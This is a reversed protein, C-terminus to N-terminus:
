KKPPPEENVTGDLMVNEFDLVLNPFRRRLLEQDKLTLYNNGLHVKLGKMNALSDRLKIGGNGIFSLEKLNKLNTIFAPTEAINNDDLTLKRLNRLSLIVSPVSELGGRSVELEELNPLSAVAKPLDGSLAGNMVLAKLNKLKGISSPLTVAMSCGNGSDIILRELKVLNGVGAPLNVRVDDWCGMELTKLNTLQGLRASVLKAERSTLRLTLHTAMRPSRLAQRLSYFSRDSFKVFSVEGLAIKDYSLGLYDKNGPEGIYDIEGSRRRGDRLVVLDQETSHRPAGKCDPFCLLSVNAREVKRGDGLELYASDYGLTPRTVRMVKGDRLRVEATVKQAKAERIGGIFFCLSVVALWFRIFFGSSM